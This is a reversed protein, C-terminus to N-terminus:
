AIRCSNAIGLLANCAAILSAHSGTVMVTWRPDIVQNELICLHSARRAPKMAVPIILASPLPTKEVWIARCKFPQM